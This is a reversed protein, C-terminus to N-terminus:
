ADQSPFPPMVLPDVLVGDNDILQQALFAIRAWQSRVYAAAQGDPDVDHRPPQAAALGPGDTWPVDLRELYHRAAEVM